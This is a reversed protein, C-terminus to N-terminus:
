IYKLPIMTYNAHNLFFAIKGMATKIVFSSSATYESSHFSTIKTPLPNLKVPVITLKSTSM